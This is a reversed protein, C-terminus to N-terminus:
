KAEKKLEFNYNSFLNDLLETTEKTQESLEQIIDVMEGLQDPKKGKLLQVGANISSLNRRLDHRLDAFAKM